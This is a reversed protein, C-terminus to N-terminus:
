IHVGTYGKEKIAVAVLTAAQMAAYPSGEERDSKVIMGGSQIAVTEAGTIDPVHLITDIKSSYMHLVGWLEHRKSKPKVEIKPTKKESAKVKDETEQGGETALPEEAVEVEETRKKLQEGPV